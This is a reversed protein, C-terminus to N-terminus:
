ARKFEKKAARRLDGHQDTPIRYGRAFLTYYTVRNVLDSNSDLWQLAIDQAGEVLKEVDPTGDAAGKTAPWFGTM